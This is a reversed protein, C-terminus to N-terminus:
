RQQQAGAAVEQQLQVLCGTSRAARALICQALARRQAPGHHSADPRAHGGHPQSIERKIAHGCKHGTSGFPAAWSALRKWSLKREGRRHKMGGSHGPIGAGLLRSSWFSLRLRRNVPGRKGMESTLVKELNHAVGALETGDHGTLGSSGVRPEKQSPKGRPTFPKKQGDYNSTV